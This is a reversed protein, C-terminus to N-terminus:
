PSPRRTGGGGPANGSGGGDGGSWSAVQALGNAIIGPSGGTQATNSVGIVQNGNEMFSLSSGVATLELQTGAPLPACDHTGLLTWNNDGQRLFLMLEPSGNNWFYIGVYADQGGDQARVAPGIWETGTLQTSTLAVQSYQDSTYLEGTRTDGSNGGANTGVAADSSISLGGDTM